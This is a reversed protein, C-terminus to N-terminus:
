TTPPAPPTFGVFAAWRTVAADFLVDPEDVVRNFQGFLEFSILGFLGTWVMLGRVALEDPIGALVLRTDPHLVAPAGAPVTAFAGAAAADRLQAVFVGSARGAPGITDEPARYGPVPSGYLLAYEHPHVLAWARVARCTARYRGALDARECAADAEEAAAGIAEYGDIILATLLDDRSPFYRYLASSVMGLERAVARLSLGAAGETALQRRATDLIERTLEARVRARASRPASAPGAAPGAAADAAPGAADTTGSM